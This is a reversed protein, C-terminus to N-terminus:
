AAIRALADGSLRYYVRGLMAAGSGDYMGRAPANAADATWDLASFGEALTLRAAGRLLARAVGRRRVAAAVYLDRVYLSRSLRTAPFTVNLVISGCVRGGQEVAILTRPDFSEPPPAPRCALAAAREAESDSVPDCYHRQMEALLVALGALDCPGPRRVELLPRPALDLLRPEGPEGSPCAVGDLEGVMSVDERQV